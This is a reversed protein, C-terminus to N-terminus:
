NQLHWHLLFALTSLAVNGLSSPTLSLIIGAIAKKVGAPLRRQSNIFFDGISVCLAIMGLMALQGLFMKLFIPHFDQTHQIIPISALVSLLALANLTCAVAFGGISAKVPKTSPGALPTTHRPEVIPM